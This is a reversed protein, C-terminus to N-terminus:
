HVTDMLPPGSIPKLLRCVAFGCIKPRTGNQFDAYTKHINTRLDCLAYAVMNSIIERLATEPQARPAWKESQLLNSRWTQYQEGYHLRQNLVHLGNKQSSFIPGGHKINNGTICDRTSCTSGNKQSSFIPGGHKINNGKVCDRTSCTSGMKRVPSSQVAMNSITGKLVTELQARPAWKESQLLNSLWTQYQEGYHLRQNLVHLMKRVLSSQVAMNSITGKLVTELQASPAWQESQFLNSRWIQYQEWIATEPKSCQAWQESEFLKSPWTQYQEWFQLRHNLMHLGNNQSSFIPGGHKINNETNCDRTSCVFGITRVPFTHVAMESITGWPATEPQARPAWQESQFLSSRWTQYQEGYQLRQNLVHLGNNQSSFCPGGHKINNGMNCDRTSWM